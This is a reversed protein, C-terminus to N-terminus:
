AIDFYLRLLFIAVDFNNNLTCRPRSKPTANKEPVFFGSKKPHARAGRLPPSGLMVVRTKGRM